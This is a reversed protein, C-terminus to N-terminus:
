AGADGKLLRSVMARLAMPSLPKHLLRYGSTQAELLREPSIDGSILFAPITPGFATRLAAVAEIGTGGESLRFDSIILDPPRGDLGALAERSSRAAHVACGWNRLLGGTGELVLEDDDIVVVRKGRVPDPTTLAAPSPVPTAATGAVRPVALAFRSGKGPTSSLDLPHDLLACLRAVISLGLGLGDSRDRGPMAVRYFEDFVARQQNEPIGLGTDCVEIRLRGDSRRCGIVVGGRDTYRVANSALNLLIRELLIRDSEVWASSHVVRFHLGKERASAAFTSEIHKLVDDIPFRSTAVQLVGADLKSIDLLANFLENMNTVASEIRQALREREAPDTEARLQAVFLNLAHLPQRLDHSAAALFRSKSLNASQLQQTREDVKRELTTYSSQLQAAMHNFQEGLAELEDGTRIAIRHDLAGTGIRAAGLSLAQIPGVMRRALLLAGLLALALGAILVLISRQIAAYLPQNAEHEPLEVFVLWNLRETKAHATLVREGHLDLAIQASDAGPRGASARAARVQASQSLDTNRLVLSIDPHAILRGEADVVYARGTEGVRIQNVVDWIHTLNVEAVSVGADRRAGAAALTMYPETARRFYVPGYYVRGELASRFKPDKSYDANSGVRDMAQRSLHLQERGRDDLLILETIAPVQRLLRLGDLERQEIAPNAWSLHTMWGLQDEIENIFQTIRAAAADAQAAQFRILNNRHEQYTLWINILSDTVLAVSIVAIFLAVYKWFLAGQVLGWILSRAERFLPRPRLGTVVHGRMGGAM